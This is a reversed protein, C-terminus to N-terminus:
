TRLQDAFGSASGVLTKVGHQNECWCEVTVRPRGNEEERSKIVAALETKTRKLEDRLEDIRHEGFVVEDQETGATLGLAAGQASEGAQEVVHERNDGPALDVVVRRRREAGCATRPDGDLAVLGGDRPQSAVLPEDFLQSRFLM